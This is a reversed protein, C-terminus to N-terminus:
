LVSGALLLGPLIPGCSFATCHLAESRLELVWAARVPAGATQQLCDQVWLGKSGARHGRM